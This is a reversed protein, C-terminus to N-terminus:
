SLFFVGLFALISGLIKQLMKGKEGLFFIGALVSFILSLSHVPLVKSVEGTQFGKLLFYLSIGVLAGALLVSGKQLKLEDKIRKGRNPILIFIWLSTTLLITSKYLGPSLINGVMYKDIFSYTVFLISALFIMKLGKTLQIRQNRWLVLLNGMLILFVGFIKNLSLSEKLFIAGGVLSWVDGLRVALSVKSVEELQRGKIFLLDVFACVLTLLFIFIVMKLNLFSYKKEFFSFFFVSIGAFLDLLFTFAIADGRNKLSKRVLLSYITMFVASLLSYVLWNM